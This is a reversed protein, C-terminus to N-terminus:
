YDQVQPQKAVVVAVDRLREIDDPDDIDTDDCAEKDVEVDSGVDEVM